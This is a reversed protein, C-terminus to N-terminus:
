LKTDGKNYLMFKVDDFNKLPFPEISHSGIYKELHIIDYWKHFKYGCQNLKGVVEYGMHKHFQLSNKNLHEDQQETYADCAIINIINQAKLLKELTEYLKKGIGMKRFNQAIYISVEATWTYAARKGFAGAYAYGVIKNDSVAVIYPYKQLTQTIRDTFEQLSPVEYEFTIATNQIYPAYIDLIAQADQPTAVRITIEM